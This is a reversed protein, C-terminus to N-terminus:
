SSDGSSNGPKTGSDNPLVEDELPVCQGAGTDRVNGQVNFMRWTKETFKGVDELVEAGARIVLARRSVTLNYCYGTFWKRQLGLKQAKLHLEALTDAIMYSIEDYRWKKTRICKYIGSVYIM